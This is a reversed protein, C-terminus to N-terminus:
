STVSSSSTAGIVVDTKAEDLLESMKMVVQAQARVAMIALRDRKEEGLAAAPAEAKRAREAVRRAQRKQNQVEREAMTLEKKVKAKAKTIGATTTTSATSATSAAPATVAVDMADVSPDAATADETPLLLTKSEIRAFIQL